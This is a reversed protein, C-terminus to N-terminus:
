YKWKLQQFVKSWLWIPGMTLLRVFNRGNIYGEKRTILWLALLSLGAILSCVGVVTPGGDREVYELQVIFFSMIGICFLVAYSLTPALKLYCYIIIAIFFSGWNLFTHANVRVLFDFQPFPIMWILGMVGFFALALFLAYLGKDGQKYTQDLEYFYRDVPRDFHLQQKTNRGKKKM